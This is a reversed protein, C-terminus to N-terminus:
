SHRIQSYAFGCPLHPSYGVPCLDAFPLYGVPCLHAFPSGVPYTDAFLLDVPCTHPVPFEDNMM